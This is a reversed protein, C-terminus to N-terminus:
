RPLPNIAARWAHLNSEDSSTLLQLLPCMESSELVFKRTPLCGNACRGSSTPHGATRVPKGSGPQRISTRAGLLSPLRASTTPSIWIRSTYITRTRESGARLDPLRVMNWSAVVSWGELTMCLRLIARLSTEGSYRSGIYM